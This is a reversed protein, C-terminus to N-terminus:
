QSMEQMIRKRDLELLPDDPFRVTFRLRYAEPDKAQTIMTRIQHPTLSFPHWVAMDEQIPFGDRDFWVARYELDFRRDTLNRVDIAAKPFAGSQGIRVNGITVYGALGTSGLILTARPHSDDILKPPPPPAPPPKSACGSVLGTLLVTMVFAASKRILDM